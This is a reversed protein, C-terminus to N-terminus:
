RGEGKVRLIAAAGWVLCARSFGNIGAIFNCGTELHNNHAHHTPMTEMIQEWRRMNSAHALLWLGTLEITKSTYGRPKDDGARLITMASRRHYEIEREALDKSVVVSIM